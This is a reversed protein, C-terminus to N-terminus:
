AAFRTTRILEGAAVNDADKFASGPLEDAGIELAFSLSQHADIAGNEAMANIDAIRSRLARPRVIFDDELHQTERRRLVAAFADDRLDEAWAAFRADIRQRDHTGKTQRVHEGFVGQLFRAFGRGGELTGVRLTPVLIQLAAFIEGLIHDDGDVGSLRAVEIVGHRQRAVLIATMPLQADVDGIYPMENGRAAREVALGAPAGGANIQRLAHQRHERFDDGVAQGAELL